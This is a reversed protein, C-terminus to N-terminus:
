NLSEISKSLGSENSLVSNPRTDQDDTENPEEGENEQSKSTLEDHDIKEYSESNITESVDSEKVTEPTVSRTQNPSPVELLCTEEEVETEGSDLEVTDKIVHKENASDSEEPAVKAYEPATRITQEGFIIQEETTVTEETVIKDNGDWTITEKRTTEPGSAVPLESDTGTILEVGQDPESQEPENQEPVDMGLWEMVRDEDSAM